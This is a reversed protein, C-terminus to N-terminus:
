LLNYLYIKKFKKEKKNIKKKMKIIAVYAAKKKRLNKFM